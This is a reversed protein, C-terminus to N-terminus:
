AVQREADELDDDFVEWPGVGIAEAILSGTEWDILRRRSRTGRGSVDDKLGLTRLVRSSEAKGRKDLWGLSRAVDAATRDSALFADRLRDNPVKGPHGPAVRLVTWSSCGLAEATEKATHGDARMRKIRAVQLESLRHSM